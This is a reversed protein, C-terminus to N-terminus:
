APEYEETMKRASDEISALFRLAEAREPGSRIRKELDIENRLGDAGKSKLYGIGTKGYTPAANFRESEPGILFELFLGLRVDDSFRLFRKAQSPHFLMESVCEEVTRGMFTKM